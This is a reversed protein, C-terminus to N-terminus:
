LLDIPPARSPATSGLVRGSLVVDAV